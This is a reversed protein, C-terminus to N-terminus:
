YMVNIAALSVALKSSITYKEFVLKQGIENAIDFAACILDLMVYFSVDLEYLTCHGSEM